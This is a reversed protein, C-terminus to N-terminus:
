TFILVNGEGGAFVVLLSVWCQRAATDIVSIDNIDHVELALFFHMDPAEPKGLNTLM